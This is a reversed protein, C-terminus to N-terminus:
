LLERQLSYSLTVKGFQSNAATFLFTSIGEPITIFNSYHYDKEGLYYVDERGNESYLSAEQLEPSSNIILYSNERVILNYRAQDVIKENQIIRFLPTDTIADVQVTCSTPLNHRNDIEVAMNNQGGYFYPYVYPYALATGAPALELTIVQDKKWRSLPIFKIDCVLCGTKFEIEKKKLEKILVLKYWHDAPYDMTEETSYYLKMPEDTEIYRIFEVFNSFHKYGTFYLTGGIDVQEMQVSEIFSVRETEFTQIKLKVGLGEPSGMFNGGIDNQNRTTLDWVDNGKKLWFHRM